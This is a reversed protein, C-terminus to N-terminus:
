CMWAVHYSPYAIPPQSAFLRPSFFSVVFFSFSLSSFLRVKLVQWDSGRFSLGYAFLSGDETWASSAIATTGDPYEANLDLFVEADRMSEATAERCRFLVFQNQLGERRYFYYWDGRKRLVGVQEFNWVEKLREELVTATKLAAGKAHTKFYGNTCDVQEDVFTRTAESDADELRAVVAPVRVLLTSFDFARAARFTTREHLARPAHRRRRALKTTRSRGCDCPRGASRTSEPRRWSDWYLNPIHM